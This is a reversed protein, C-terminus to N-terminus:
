NSRTMNENFNVTMRHQIPTERWLSFSTTMTRTDVRGASKRLLEHDIYYVRAPHDRSPIGVYGLWKEVLRFGRRFVTLDWFVPHHLVEHVPDTCRFVWVTWLTLLRGAVDFAEATRDLLRDDLTTSVSRPTVLPGDLRESLGTQLSFFPDTLCGSLPFSIQHLCIVCRGRMAWAFVCCGACAFSVGLVRLLLGVPAKLDEIYGKQAFLLFFWEACTFLCM